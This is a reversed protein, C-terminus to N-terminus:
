NEKPFNTIKLLKLVPAHASKPSLFTRTGEILENRKPCFHLYNACGLFRSVRTAILKNLQNYKLLFNGLFSRFFYVFRGNKDLYKTTSYTAYPGSSIVHASYDFVSILYQSCHLHKINLVMDCGELLINLSSNDPMHFTLTDECSDPFNNVEKAKFDNFNVFFFYHDKKLRISSKRTSLSLDIYVGKNFDSRFEVNTLQHNNKICVLLQKINYGTYDSCSLEINYYKTMPDYYYFLRFLIAIETEHYTQYLIGKPKTSGEPYLQKFKLHNRYWEAEIAISHKLHYEIVNFWLHCVNRLTFLEESLYEFIRELIDVVEM